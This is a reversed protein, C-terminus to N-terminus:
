DAEAAPCSSRGIGWTVLKTAWALAMRGLTWFCPLTMFTAYTTVIVFQWSWALGWTMWVCVLAYLVSALLASISAVSGKLDDFTGPYGRAMPTSEGEEPRSQGDALLLLACLLGWATALVGFPGSCFGIAITVAVILAMVAGIIWMAIGLFM